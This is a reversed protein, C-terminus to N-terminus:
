TLAAHRSERSLRKVFDRARHPYPSEHPPNEERKSGLGSHNITSGNNGGSSGFGLPPRGRMDDQAANVPTKNTSRDPETANAHHWRMSQFRAQTSDEEMAAFFASRRPRILPDLCAQCLCWRAVPAWPMGGAKRSVPAFTWSLTGNSSNISAM